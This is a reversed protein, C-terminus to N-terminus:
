EVWLINKERFLLEGFALLAAYFRQLVQADFAARNREDFDTPM